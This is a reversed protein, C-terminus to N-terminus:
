DVEDWYESDVVIINNDNDYKIWDCEVKNGIDGFNMDRYYIEADDPADKIKDLMEKKTM